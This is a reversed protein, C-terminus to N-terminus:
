SGITNLSKMIKIFASAAPSLSRSALHAVGITFYIEPNTLPRGVVASQDLLLPTSAPLASIGLGAAVLGGVTALHGCEFLPKVTIELKAFTTDTVMRVGSRPAMAIFPYDVFVSWPVQEQESLPHGAPCMLGFKDRLLPEFAFISDEIPPTTIAFDIYRGQIHQYLISTVNDAIEMEVLPYRRHFEAMVRPLFVAAVPPLAGIVIRGREGAFTQALEAFAHDFDGTLREAIPLLAEGGTTLSVHRTDRDFLRVNLEEELQQIARSLAPQSLHVARATESFSRTRAVHLFLRLSNFNPTRRM